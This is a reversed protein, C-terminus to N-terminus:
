TTTCGELYTSERKVHWPRNSHSRANKKRIGRSWHVDPIFASRQNSALAVAQAGIYVGSTVDSRGRASMQKDTSPVDALWATELQRLDLPDNSDSSIVHGCINCWWRRIVAFSRSPCATLRACPARGRMVGCRAAIGCMQVGHSAPYVRSTGRRATTGTGLRLILRGYTVPHM